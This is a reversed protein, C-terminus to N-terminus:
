GPHQMAHRIDGPQPQAGPEVRAIRGGALECRVGQAWGAPLLAEAFHHAETM